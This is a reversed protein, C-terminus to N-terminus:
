KAPAAPSTAQSDAPKVPVAPPPAASDVPKTIPTAAPAPKLGAKALVADVYDRTEQLNPVGGSDDLAKPGANYAGLALSLDGQYKDLLQKLYRAGADVNQKPDFPNAVGLEAGTQPMLQMLGQAGSVSVACPRFASEQEVVARILKPDLSQQKAADEILPNVLSQELPDCDPQEAVQARPKTDLPMLWLGLNEAQRRIAARQLAIAARQL